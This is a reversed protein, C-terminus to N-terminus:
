RNNQDQQASRHQRNNQESADIQRRNEAVQQNTGHNPWMRKSQAFTKGARM